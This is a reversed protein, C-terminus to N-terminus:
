SQYIWHSTGSDWVYTGAIRNNAIYDRIFEGSHVGICYGRLTANAGITIKNFNSNEFTYGGIYTCVPL